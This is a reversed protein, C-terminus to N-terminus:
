GAGGSLAAQRQRLRSPGGTTTGVPIVTENVNSPVVTTGDPVTTQSQANRSPGSNPTYVKKGSNFDYRDFGPTLAEYIYVNGSPPGDRYSGSSAPTSTDQTITTPAVPTDTPTVTTPAAAAAQAANIVDDPSRASPSAAVEASTTQPNNPLCPEIEGRGDVPSPVQIGGGQASMPTPNGSTTVPGPATVIPATGAGATSNGANASSALYASSSSSSSAAASANANSSSPRLTDSATVEVLKTETYSFGDADVGKVEVQKYKKETSSTKEAPDGYDLGDVFGTREKAQINAAEYERDVGLSVDGQVSETSTSGGAKTDTTTVITTKTTQGTTQGVQINPRSFDLLPDPLYVNVGKYTTVRVSGKPKLEKAYPKEELRAIMAEYLPEYFIEVDTGAFESIPAIKEIFWWHPQNPYILSSVWGDNEIVCVIKYRRTQNLIIEDGYDFLDDLNQFIETRPGIGIEPKYWPGVAAVPVANSQELKGAAEEPLGVDEESM